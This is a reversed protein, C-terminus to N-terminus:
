VWSKQSQELPLPRGSPRRRPSLSTYIQLIHAAPSGEYSRVKLNVRHVNFMIENTEKATKKLRVAKGIVDM